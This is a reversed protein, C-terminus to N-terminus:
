KEILVIQIDMVNTGTPGSIILGGTRSFFTYSDNRGLYDLPDLGQKVADPVMNCDVIAGAADTPGDQGDTGASLFVIGNEGRIEIGFALATETNRGGKGCGNVTVTTEGGSILCVKEGPRMNQKYEMAKEALYGAAACAEGCLGTSLVVTRYGAAEAAKKAADLALMNSGVIINESRRFVADGPKPTEPIDGRLGEALRCMVSIPLKDMLDYKDVIILAQAYTTPDPSAPGSAIADPADGIVDSLILSLCSAPYAAEALRGGKVKSIHKRITNLEQINAGAKLLIDTVTQKEKLTIGDSPCTLLASGGGSILFVVLTSNDAERLVNLVKRTAECGNGDPVPHGAEYVEINQPFKKNGAHGYKTILIGRAILDGAADMLANAMPVAAKGVGVIFIKGIKKERVIALVRDKEASVARYSDAAHLSKYFLDLIITRSENQTM